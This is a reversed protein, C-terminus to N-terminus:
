FSPGIAFQPVGRFWRGNEDPRPSWTFDIRVPIFPFNLRAGVGFVYKVDNPGLREDTFELLFDDWTIYEPRAWVNGADMFLEMGIIGVLPIRLEANGQIVTLGGSVPVENESYGRLSNVGGIRFRDELPVRAVQDDIGQEGGTPTLPPSEGFPDITGVRVRTAFVWGRRRMPTYRSLIGQIKAFSSTGRLPGGAIEGLVSQASGRTPNLPDDRVDRDGGLQLRHTTYSVSLSDVIRADHAPDGSSLLLEGSQTVFSNDQTIAIKSLRTFDRRLQFLFGESQQKVVYVPNAYDRNNQYFVRALGRTRSRLLWPELVSLQTRTLLFRGRADFALRSDIAGQIGRSALNRHGWEGTFRFRETTGSGVGADIWRPKREALRLDFDVRTRTSDVLPTMQVASFLGTEYLREISREVRSQRYTEDPKMLLERRILPEKVRPEGPTSIYTEGYRYAPGEEVQYRVTVRLSDRLASPAVHPLRGHEKYLQSIRTTDAIMLVPSFPRGPRLLLRRRVDDEPISLVGPLEIVSVHSRPGEVIEFVVVASSADRGPEIRHSARADLFGHQRYLSEIARVDSALFDLRIIPRARWPLFSPDRTKIVAKIDREKVQRRGMFKVDQVTKLESAFEEQARSAAPAMLGLAVAM